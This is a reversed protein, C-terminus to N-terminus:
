EVLSPCIQLDEIKDRLVQMYRIPTARVWNKYTVAM